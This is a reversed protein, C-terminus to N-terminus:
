VHARGIESAKDSYTSAPEFEFSLGQQHYTKNVNRSRLWYVLEKVEETTPVKGYTIMQGNLIIVVGEASLLNLVSTENKDLAKFIDSEKYVDELLEVQREQMGSKYQFVDQAGLSHIRSSLM